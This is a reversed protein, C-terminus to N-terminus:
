SPKGRGECKCHVTVVGDPSTEFTPAPGKERVQTSLLSTREYSEFAQGPEADIMKRRESPSMHIYMSAATELPTHNPLCTDRHHAASIGYIPSYETMYVYMMNNNYM